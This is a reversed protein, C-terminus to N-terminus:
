YMRDFIIYKNKVTTIIGSQGSTLGFINETADATFVFSNSDVSFKIANEIITDKCFKVTNSDNSDAVLLGNSSACNNDVTGPTIASCLVAYNVIKCSYYTEGQIYYGVKTVLKCDPNDNNPCDYLYQDNTDVISCEVNESGCNPKNMLRYGNKGKFIYM